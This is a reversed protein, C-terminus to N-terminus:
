RTAELFGLIATAALSHARENPHSDWRNVVLEAAVQDGLVNLLDLHPVGLERWHADLKRHAEGFAYRPGLHDVFPFTVVRLRGGRAEVSEKLWSLTTRERAWVAPDQYAGKLADVYGDAWGSRSRMWRFYLTDLLVSKRLLPWPPARLGDRYLANRDNFAGAIDNLCYVLVVERYRYDPNGTRVEWLHEPTDRGNYGLLHVEWEPRWARLLNVFRREVDAVGHGTAISDGLFTIRRLGQAAEEDYDRSDRVGLNNFRYHREFWRKATRTVALSDSEDYILRFYIEGGTAAGVALTGAMALNSALLWAARWTAQSRRWASACTRAVVGLTVGVLGALAMLLPEIGEWEALTDM